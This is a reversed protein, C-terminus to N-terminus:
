VIGLVLALVWRRLQTNRLAYRYEEKLEPPLLNIM